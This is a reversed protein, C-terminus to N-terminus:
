NLKQVSVSRFWVPEGSPYFTVYVDRNLRTLQLMVPLFLEGGRKLTSSIEFEGTKREQAIYWAGRLGHTGDSRAVFDGAVIYWGPEMDSLVVAVAGGSEESKVCVRDQSASRELSTSDTGMMLGNQWIYASKVGSLSGRPKLPTLILNANDPLGGSEPVPVSKLFGQGGRMKKLISTSQEVTPLKAKPIRVGRSDKRPPTLKAVDAKSLGKKIQGTVRIPGIRKIGPRVVSRAAALIPDPEEEASWVLSTLFLAAVATLLVITSVAAFRRM